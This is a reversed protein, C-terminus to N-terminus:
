EVEPSKATAPGGRNQRIVTSDDSFFSRREKANQIPDAHITYSKGDGALTFRYGNRAGKALDASILGAGAPGLEELKSAYKGSQLNYSVQATNLMRIQVIASTELASDRSDAVAAMVFVALVIFSRIASM